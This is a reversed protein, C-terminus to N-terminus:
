VECTIFERGNKSRGAKVIIEGMPEGCMEWLDRIRFFDEIFTPSNTAAVCDGDKVSLIRQTEGKSNVDEYLVYCEVKFCEGIRDKMKVIDSSMTMMHVTKSNLESQPINTEIIKM